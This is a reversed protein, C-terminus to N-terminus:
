YSRGQLEEERVEWKRELVDFRVYRLVELM